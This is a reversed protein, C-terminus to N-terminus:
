ESKGASGKLGHTYLLGCATFMTEETCMLAIDRKRAAELVEEPPMKGRVFIICQIDMMEATRVVHPNILGSLLLADHKVFALVDSMLDAGCACKYDFDPDAAEVLVKCGLLEGIEQIKM